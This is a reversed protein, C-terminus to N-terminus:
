HREADSRLKLRQIVSAMRQTEQHLQDVRSDMAGIADSIKQLTLEIDSLREDTSKEANKSVVM